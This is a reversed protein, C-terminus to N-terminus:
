NLALGVPSRSGNLLSEFIERHRAVYRQWSFLRSQDIAIKSLEDRRDLAELIAESLRTPDVPLLDDWTEGVELGIGAEGVLEPTGGSNSFVHPLGLMMRE